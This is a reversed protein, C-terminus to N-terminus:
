KRRKKSAIAYRNFDLCLGVWYAIDNANKLVEGAVLVYGNYERGRMVMKRCGEKQILEEQISPDIRCMLDQGTVCVCMKGGVMFTIGRFMKKEEVDNRDALQARIQQALQENYGM